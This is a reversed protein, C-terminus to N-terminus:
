AAMEEEMQISPQLDYMYKVAKTAAAAANFIIKSDQKMADRWYKLYQANEEKVENIIGFDASLFAAGLEAILEEYAYESRMVRAVLNAILDKAQALGIHLNM